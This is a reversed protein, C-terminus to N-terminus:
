RALVADGTKFSLFFLVIKSVLLLIGSDNQSIRWPRKGMAPFERVALAAGRTLM